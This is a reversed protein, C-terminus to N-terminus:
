GSASALGGAANARAAEAEARLWNVFDQADANRSGRESMVVYYARQSAV